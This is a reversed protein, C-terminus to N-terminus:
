DTILYPLVNPIIVDAGCNIRCQVRLDAANDLDLMSEDVKTKWLALELLFSADKLQHYECEYFILKSHITDVIRDSLPVQKLLNKINTRWKKIGIANMREAINCKVLFHFSNMSNRLTRTDKWWSERLQVFEECVMQLNSNNHVTFLRQQIEMLSQVLQHYAPSARFVEVMAGWDEFFTGWGEDGYYNRDVLSRITLEKAAKRWDISQNSYSAQQTGMLRQVINLSAGARCLTEIMKDWNLIHNPFSDKQENILFLMIDYPAGSWIAYFIPLCGWKDETILNEPQSAVIFRYLELDQKTSCALIHLPTMGLCDQNNDVVTNTFVIAPPLSSDVAVITASDVADNDGSRRARTNSEGGSWNAARKREGSRAGSLGSHSMLSAGSNQESMIRKLQDITVETPHYSQYYCLKHIPPGDFRSRLADDIMEYSCFLRLLDHCGVFCWLAQTEPLLALNRLSFCREFACEDIKATGGCLEVTTLEKCNSFVRMGILKVTSPIKMRKLSKCGNFAGNGFQEIGDCLELEELRTCSAFALLGVRVTSPIKMCELSKCNKFADEEIEELGERLEVEVLQECNAFAQAGITKVTSPVKFRKLSKCLYFANAEIYELGESLEVEVLQECNAFAYNGIRKVTSPVKMSRLSKCGSFSREGIQLLGECLEVVVLQECGMFAHDGIKKVSPDIRLHTIDRPIEEIPQGAYLFWVINNGGGSDAVDVGSM